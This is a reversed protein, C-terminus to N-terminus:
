NAGREALEKGLAKEFLAKNEAKANDTFRLVQFGNGDGVIAASSASIQV